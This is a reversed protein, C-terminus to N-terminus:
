IWEKVRALHMYPKEYPSNVNVGYAEGSINYRGILDKLMKLTDTNLKEIEEESKAIHIIKGGENLGNLEWYCLDAIETEKLGFGGNKAIISELVLQIKEGSRIRSIAPAKGTKYDIISIGGDENIDIRDAKCGLEIEYDDSVKISCHGRIEAYYKKTNMNRTFFSFIKNLRFHWLGFDLPTLWKNGLIKQATRWLEKIDTKDKSNRVFEELVNHVYNGRMNKWENIRNMETLKLIKKAYFAYPNSILLDLDSVWLRTPRMNLNPSPPEFKFPQNRSKETNSLSEEPRKAEVIKLTEAIKDFYRYRRQQVGDVLTSRTVLVNNKCILRAFTNQLSQNKKEVFQIGFHNIMSRTMWFDNKESLNFWSEENVDAIVIFDAGLLQAEIAGLIVVGPTYGDAERISKAFIHKRLFVSFEKLTIKISSLAFQSFESSIDELKDASEQNILSTLESCIEFWESFPRITNSDESIRQIKEILSSFNQEKKPYLNFARFFNGPVVQRQRFFLELELADSLFEASMKLVKIVSICDYQKELMDMILSVLIGDTTKSFSTGMSDDAFINRRKLESKIIETLKQNPSVILVNKQESVAEKVAIAIALGEDFISDVELLEVPNDLNKRSVERLQQDSIEISSNELLSRAYCNVEGIGVAIIKRNEEIFTDLKERTLNRIEEIEPIKIAAEVIAITHSWYKQLNKRVTGTLQEPDIKNLTLERILFCLSEALEYLTDFPIDQKAEKLMKMLLSVVKNDEFSFLDSIVVLEPYFLPKKLSLYKKLERRSRRNPLLATTKEKQRSVIEAAEELFFGHSPVCHVQKM